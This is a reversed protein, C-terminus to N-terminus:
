EESWRNLDEQLDIMVRAAEQYLKAIGTGM